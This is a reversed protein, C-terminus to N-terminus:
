REKTKQKKKMSQRRRRERPSLSVKKTTTDPSFKNPPVVVRGSKTTQQGVEEM